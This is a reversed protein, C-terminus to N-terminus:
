HDAKEVINGREDRTTGDSFIITQKMTGDPNSLDVKDPANYGGMRNLMELAKLKDYQKVKVTELEATTWAKRLDAASGYAVKALEQVNRLISVGAFEFANDKIFQIYDACERKRVNEWGINYATKESYGAAKAAKTADWLRCYAECFVRQKETLENIKSYEVM